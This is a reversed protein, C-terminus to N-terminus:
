SFSAQLGHHHDIKRALAKFAASAKAMPFADIVARGLKAARGLHEDTPILGIFELEIHLHRQAVDAINQFVIKAQAENAQSVLVGFSRRGVQNCLQKILRYAATISDADRTMHILIDGKNLMNLPMTDQSNLAADILVIEHQGAMGMFMREIQMMTKEKSLLHADSDSSLLKAVSYGQGTTNIIEHTLDPRHLAEILSSQQAAFGYGQAPRLPTQTADLIMVDSGQRHLSAALNTLLRTQENNHAASLISLIKPTPGAMLRRLGTAQDRHNTM